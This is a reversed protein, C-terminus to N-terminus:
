GLSTKKNKRASAKRTPTKKATRKSASGSKAAKLSKVLSRASLTKAEATLTEVLKNLEKKRRGVYRKIRALEEPLRAQLGEITEREKAIFSKVRKVDSRLIKKLEATQSSAVNQAFKRAENIWKPDRLLNQLLM